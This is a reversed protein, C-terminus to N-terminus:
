SHLPTRSGARAYRPANPPSPSSKSSKQGVRTTIPPLRVVGTAPSSSALVPTHYYSPPSSTSPARQPGNRAKRQTRPSVLASAFRSTHLPTAVSSGSSGSSITHSRSRRPVPDCDTGAEELAPEEQIVPLGCGSHIDGWSRSRRRPAPLEHAASIDIERHMHNLFHFHYHDHDHDQHNHHSSTQDPHNDLATEDSSFSLLSFGDPCSCFSSSCPSSSNKRVTGCRCLHPEPTTSASDSAPYSDSVAVGERLPSSKLSHHRQSDLATPSSPVSASRRRQRRRRLGALAPHPTLPKTPHKSSSAVQAEGQSPSLSRPRAADANTPCAPSHQQSAFADPAAYFAQRVRPNTGHESPPPHPVHQPPQQSVDAAHDGARAAYSSAFATPAPSSAAQKKNKKLRLGQRLKFALDLVDNAPVATPAPHKNM